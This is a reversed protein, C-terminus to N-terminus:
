QAGGQPQVLPSSGGTASSGGLSGLGTAPGIHSVSVTPIFATTTAKQALATDVQKAHGFMFYGISALISAFTGLVTAGGINGKDAMPIGAFALVGVIAFAGFGGIKYGDLHNEFDTLPAAIEQVVKVLFAWVALWASKLWAFFKM